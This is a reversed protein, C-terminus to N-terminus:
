GSTASEEEPRLVEVIRPNRLHRRPGIRQLTEGRSWPSNTEIRRARGNTTANAWSRRSREGRVPRARNAPACSWKARDTTGEGCPRSVFGALRADEQPESERYSRAAARLIATDAAAFRASGAPEGAPLTLAWSVGIDAAASIEALDAVAECLNASVGAEVLDAFAGVGGAATAEVARRAAPLSGLLRRSVIRAFSEVAPGDPDLRVPPTVAPTALTVVSGDPEAPGPRVRGLFRAAERNAGGRYLPQPREVSCAAALLLNRAGGVLAAGDEVAVEPGAGEARVRIVDRDATTLDHYVRIQSVEAAESFIELLGPSSARTTASVPRGRYSSRRDARPTACM